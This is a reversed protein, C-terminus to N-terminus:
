EQASHMARSPAATNTTPRRSLRTRSAASFSPLLSVPCPLFQVPDPEGAIGRAFTWRSVALATEKMPPSSVITFLAPVDPTSEIRL